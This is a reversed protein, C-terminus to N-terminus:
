KEYKKFIQKAYERPTLGMRRKFSYSFYSQSSFGCDYAIESLTLDTNVLLRVAARIRSEEVFDRLTMGTSKKFCTHFHTPSFSAYKSLADLSLDESLNNEIYHIVSEIVTSNSPKKLFSQTKNERSLMYILELIKSQLMLQESELAETHYECLKKFIDAYSEANKVKIYSPLSMLRDYLEGGTLIAHV